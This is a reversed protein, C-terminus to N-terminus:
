LLSAVLCKRRPLQVQRSSGSGREIASTRILVAGIREAGEGMLLHAISALDDAVNLQTIKIRRGFLDQSGRYDRVGKFGAYGIAIGVTGLRLPTVRSDVILVAVKEQLLSTLRTRIKRAAGFPDDPWLVAHGEPANKLDVGANPLLSGDKETLLAGEVGGFVHNAEQLILQAHEPRLNYKKALAQAHRSAKVADLPSFRGQSSAVVKSAVAIVDNKVMGLGRRKLAALIAEALDDRPKIVRLPLPYAQLM